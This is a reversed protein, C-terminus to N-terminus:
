KEEEDLSRLAEELRQRVEETKKTQTAVLIGQEDLLLAECVGMEPHVGHLYAWMSKRHKLVNIAGEKQQEKAVDIREMYDGVIKREIESLVIVDGIKM